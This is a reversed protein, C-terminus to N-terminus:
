AAVRSGIAALQRRARATAREILYGNEFSRLRGTECLRVLMRHTMSISQKHRAGRTFVFFTRGPSVHSLRVKQWKEDLHMQYAFGIQVHDALSKGRSPEAAEAKPLGAIDLDGEAPEPEAGLDIDVKGDWNVAGEDMLGIRQAEEATFRPMVVEDRLVPLHGQPPPLESAEPMAEGLATDVQKALLNYDLTRLAQGKLSEAHAPLLLGFFSKKASEPWGILDMGENLEKMLTPLQMLFSKRQEPSGKPQVSMFLERGAHRLRKVRASDAGDLRAARMLAQSWVQSIFDRVFETVPLPKLLSQLQQTYRQQLRLDTEKEALLSAAGGNDQVDRRAQEVIFAELVSLKQEYVEIQDFDGEVIEQVLDGVLALFRQGQESEFDEFASGLSAIRNVFRRVPHKRSSFFSSDGLAARLVPLQLRAIQRAMQPPVKPDSLIQDFLSGIVDIVMHDLSGHSAQRLADRHTRILNPAVPLARGVEHEYAGSMSQAHGADAAFAGDEGGPGLDTFALRRLLTMLGADVHGLLTGQPAQGHMPDRAGGHGFQGRGTSVGFRGHASHRHTDDHRGSNRADFHGSSADQSHPASHDLGVPRSSTDYGSNTRGFGSGRESTRVSPSSPKVGAARMDAVIAAYTQAMSTAMSRGLEAVLVTRLEARETVLDVSRVMANGIVEARFPNRPTDASGHLMSGVFTDLERQEVECDQAIQLGFREASVQVEMERDDVLSLADWSTEALAGQSSSRPLVESEVRRDLVDDFSNCFVALKRNLEFQAGLLNDRQFVNASALASAGLSDVAREAAGRAALKMRRVAAEIAAPLGLTPSQNM